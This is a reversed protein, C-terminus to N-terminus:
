VCRFLLWSEWVWSPGRMRWSGRFLNSSPLNRGGSYGKSHMSERLESVLDYLVWRAWPSETDTTHTLSKRLSPPRTSHFCRASSLCGFAAGLGVAKDMLASQPVIADECVISGTRSARLSLKNKIPPTTLNATGEQSLKTTILPLLIVHLSNSVHTFLLSCPSSLFPQHSSASRVREVVFGRVKGDWACKAWIV